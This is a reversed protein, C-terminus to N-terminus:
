RKRPAGSEDVLWSAVEYSEAHLYTNIVGIPSDVSVIVDGGHVPNLRKGKYFIACLHSGYRSFLIRQEESYRSYDGTDDKKRQKIFDVAEDVTAFSGITSWRTYRMVTKNHKWRAAGTMSTYTSEVKRLKVLIQAM